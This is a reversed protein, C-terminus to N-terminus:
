QQHHDPQRQLREPRGRNSQVRESRRHGLRGTFSIAAGAGATGSPSGLANTAGSQLTGSNIFTGGSYSNAGNILWTGAGTMLLSAAGTGNDTLVPDLVGNSAGSLTLSTVTNAMIFAVSGTNSFTLTGTGSSVIGGGPNGLSFLRDTSVQPGTYQLFGGNFVLNAASNSSAGIGSPNGGLALYDVALTGGSLLTRGGYSNTSVYSVGNNTVISSSLTLTATSTGGTRDFGGIGTINGGFNGNARKISHLRRAPGSASIRPILEAQLHPWPAALPLAPM